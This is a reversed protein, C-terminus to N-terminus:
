KIQYRNVLYEKLKVSAKGRHSIKNKEETKLTSYPMDCWEPIFIASLPIWKELKVDIKDLLIWKCDWNFILINEMDYFAISSFFHARKNKENEMRNMFFDIWETDSAHEWAWWRRTKVWLEWELAEVVIWSDDAITPLWSIDSFFQAKIIANDEYTKGNEEVDENINLDILSVLEIGLWELTDSIEKIKWRNKTAILIKKM